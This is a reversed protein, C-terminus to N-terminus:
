PGVQVNILHSLRPPSFFKLADTMKTMWAPRFSHSYECFCVHGEIDAMLFSLSGDRFLHGRSGHALCDPDEGAM